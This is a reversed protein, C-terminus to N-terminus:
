RRGELAAALEPSAAKAERLERMGERTRDCREGEIQAAYSPRGKLREWYASVLPRKEAGWFFGDWDAEMIRDLIVVWSVDALSFREGAIWPGGSKELQHSLDDLHRAMHVRSKAIVKVAPPTKLMGALGRLKLMAFIMPRQKLRHFLLGELFYSWPTHALMTAFIPLTLGPICNGARESTALTPDDGTLSALEVWHQILAHESSDSPFLARGREGAHEAAYVIQDHSEYIPHGHHVLVPVLGAPNVRLHARGINEYPGTEILHVHHGAYPLDLEAMCVRLKKSCLSFGNHYLEWEQEHPLSIEEHLGGEMSRTRRRLREIVYALLGAGLAAILLIQWLALGFM